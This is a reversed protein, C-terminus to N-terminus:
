ARLGRLDEELLHVLRELAVQVQPTLAQGHEFSEGEIGYVLVKPPFSGQSRALELMSGLGIGHTSRHSHEDPLPQNSADFRHITGPQSGPQVADIIVALECDRLLDWLGTVDGNLEIVSIAPSLRKRLLRAAALGAGDDGRIDNGVGIILVQGPQKRQADEM